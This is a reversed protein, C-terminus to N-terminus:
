APTLDQVAIGLSDWTVLFLGDQTELEEGWWVGFLLQNALADAYGIGGQSTITSDALEINDADFKISGSVHTMTTGLLLVGGASYGAGSSEGSNWPASGYATDTGYNPTVDGWFAFKHDEAGWNLTTLAGTFVALQTVVFLGPASWAM